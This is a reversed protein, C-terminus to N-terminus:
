DLQMVSITKFADKYEIRAMFQHRYKHMLYIVESGTKAWITVSLGQSEFFPRESIDPTANWCAWRLGQFHFCLTQQADRPPRIPFDWGKDPAPSGLTAAPMQAVYRITRQHAEDRWFGLLRYTDKKRFLSAQFYASLPTDSGPLGFLLPALNLDKTLLEWGEENWSRSIAGRLELLDRSSSFFSHVQTQGNVTATCEGLQTETLSRSSGILAWAVATGLLTWVALTSWFWKYRM